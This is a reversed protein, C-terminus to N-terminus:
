PYSVEPAGEKPSEPEPPPDDGTDGGGKLFIGLGVKIRVLCKAAVTEFIVKKVM